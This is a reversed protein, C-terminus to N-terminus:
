NGPKKIDRLRRNEVLPKSWVGILTIYIMCPFIILLGLRLGSLDGLAGILLPIVAGGIIASTLLGAFAGHHSKVSNLGLSHILPWMPSICFSTALFGFLSVSANGFLAFVYIAMSLCGSVLIVHKARFVKLLFFSVVNGLTFIGWFWSVARAGTTHPDFAHYEMLFKSIWSAMGAEMGVYLFMGVAYLVVHRNRLLQRYADLSGVKEDKKLSVHPFRSFIILSLVVFTIVGYVAYVAIWPFERPTITEFFPLLVGRDGGEGNFLGAVFYSYVMPALFSAIGFVLQVITLNASFHEEGGTVRLLPSLAVQVMALSCGVLFFSLIITLFRPVLLILAAAGLSLGLAILLVRKEGFREVLMGSPVSTLGYALYITFPLLSVMTLSLSFSDIIDPIIPGVVNTVFGLGFYCVFIVALLYYNRKV